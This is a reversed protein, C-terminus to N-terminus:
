MWARQLRAPLREEDVDTMMWSIVRYASLEGPEWSPVVIVDGLRIFDNLYAGRKRTDLLVQPRGEPTVRLLRGPWESVLYSDMDAPTIGDAQGLGTAVVRVARSPYDIALLKGEMTTVMLRQAEALLGNASKLEPDDSWVSVKGDKLTFIRGSGSDTVLVAGDPAVATDNLFTAGPVAHRAVIKGSAIDIEVLRDIDSVYLKGGAVTAGKPADLGTVWQRELLKGSTSVRSIFGNGDRADGEGGVNAVFLTRGDPGLAVSEPEALGKVQWVPLRTEQFKDNSPAGCGCTLLLLALGWGRRIM